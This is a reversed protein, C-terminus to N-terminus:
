QKKEQISAEEILTFAKLYLSQPSDTSSYASFVPLGFISILLLTLVKKM